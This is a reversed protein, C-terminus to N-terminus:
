PEEPTPTQRKRQPKGDVYLTYGLREMQRLVEPPYGLGKIDSQALVVGDRRVEYHAM